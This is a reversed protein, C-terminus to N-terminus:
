KTKGGGSVGCASGAILAKQRAALNKVDCKCNNRRYNTALGRKKLFTRITSENIAYHNAMETSGAGKAHMALLGEEMDPSIVKWSTRNKNTRKPRAEPRIGGEDPLPDKSRMMAPAHKQIMAEISAMCINM